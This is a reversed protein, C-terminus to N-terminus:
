YKRSSESVCSARARPSATVALRRPSAPRGRWELRGHVRWALVVAIVGIAMAALWAHVRTDLAGSDGVGPPDAPCRFLLLLWVGTFGAGAPTLWRRWLARSGAIWSPARSPSSSGLTPCWGTARRFPPARAGWSSAGHASRRGGLRGAM